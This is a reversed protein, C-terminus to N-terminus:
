TGLFCRFGTIKTVRDMPDNDFIRIRRKGQIDRNPWALGGNLRCWKGAFLQFGEPQREITLKM